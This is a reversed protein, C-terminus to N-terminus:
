KPDRRKRAPKATAAHPPADNSAPTIASAPSSPPEEVVGSSPLASVPTVCTTPGGACASAPFSAASWASPAVSAVRSAPSGPSAEASAPGSAPGHGDVWFSQPSVHTEIVLGTVPQASVLQVGQESGLAVAVQLVLPAQATPAQLAPNSCQVPGVDPPQSVDIVVAVFQPEHVLAQVMASGSQAALPAVHIHVLPQEPLLTSQLLAHTSSDVLVASQPPQV